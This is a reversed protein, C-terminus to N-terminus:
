RNVVDVQIGSLVDLAKDNLEQDFSATCSADVLVPVEPCATKAIVANSLVCINGVLGVLEISDFALEGEPVRRQAERLFDFLGASGFTPKEFLPDGERCQAAVDGFLRWGRTGEICHEVPLRRGEQTDLYGAPHTDFTFAVVDGSSRYERIKRVIAAELLEAGPFGLAGDVFDNQYDVVVLLRGM